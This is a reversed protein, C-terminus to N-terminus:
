VASHQVKICTLQYYIQVTGYEWMILSIGAVLYSWVITTKLVIFLITM